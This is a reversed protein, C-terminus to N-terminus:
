SDPSLPDFESQCGGSFSQQCTITSCAQPLQATTPLGSLGALKAADAWLISADPLVSCCRFKNIDQIAANVTATDTPNAIINKLNTIVHDGFISSLDQTACLSAGSAGNVVATLTGLQCPEDLARAFANDAADHLDDPSFGAAEDLFANVFNVDDNWQQISAGIQSNVPKTNTDLICTDAQRALMGSSPRAAAAVALAITSIATFSKM